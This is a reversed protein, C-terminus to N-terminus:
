TTELTGKKNNIFNGFNFLFNITQNSHRVHRLFINMKEEMGLSKGDSKRFLFCDDKLYFTLEVKYNYYTFSIDRLYFLSCFVM